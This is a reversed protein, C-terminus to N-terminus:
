GDILGAQGQKGAFVSAVGQKNLKIICRAFEDAIYITSDPAIALDLPSNLSV